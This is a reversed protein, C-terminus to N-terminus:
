TRKWSVNGQSRKLKNIADEYEESVATMLADVPEGNEDYEVEDGEAYLSLANYIEMRKKDPVTNHHAIFLGKWLTEVALLKEGLQAFNVGSKEMQKLTMNTVELRYEKGDVTFTIMRKEGIENKM